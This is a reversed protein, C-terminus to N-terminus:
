LLNNIDFFGNEDALIWEKTEPYGHWFNRPCIKIGNNLLAPKYSFSSKSTILLDAYVMHLFSDQPNMDLCLHLNEFNEFDKFDKQEGQSFLYIAITKQTHINNLVLSLVNVFYNNNQWRILLNPNKNTQGITIDGRRVHIAINYYNNNYILKDNQRSKANYFKTKFDDIIGFQDKYPQDKESVFVIKKDGYSNIIKTITSVECPNNEDFFPLLVKKYGQKKILYNATIENEGLGLFYDWEPNSFPSYAYSLGFQNAYWFGASWNAIQHGIGAGPNPYSTYYCSANRDKSHKIFLYHWYSCYIYPYKNRKRAFNVIKFWIYNKIKNKTELVKM